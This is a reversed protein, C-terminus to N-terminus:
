SDDAAKAYLSRSGSKKPKGADVLRHYFEKIIPNFRTAVLTGMYLASRVKARGGWVLRKGSFKGSDRNFPAVGAM